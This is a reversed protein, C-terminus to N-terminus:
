SLPEKVKEFRLYGFPERTAKINYRRFKGFYQDPMDGHISINDTDLRVFADQVCGLYKKFSSEKWETM